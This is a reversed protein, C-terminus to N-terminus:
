RRRIESVAGDILQAMRSWLIRVYVVSVVLPM